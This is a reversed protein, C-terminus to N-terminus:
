RFRQPPRAPSSTRRQRRDGRGHRSRAPVILATVFDAGRTSRSFSNVRHLIRSPSSETLSFARTAIRIENMTTAAAIGHGAVDGIALLVRGDPQISADFWDGGVGVEAPLYLAALDLCPARALGEAGDGIAAASRNGARAAPPRDHRRSGSPDPRAGHHGAVDGFDVSGSGARDRIFEVRAVLTLTSGDPASWQTQLQDFERTPQPDVLAHWFPFATAHGNSTLVEHGFLQAASDSWTTVGTSTDVHFHALRAIRQADSLAAQSAQARRDKTETARRPSPARHVRLGEVGAGM